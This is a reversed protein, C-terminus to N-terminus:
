FLVRWFVIFFGNELLHNGLLHYEIQDLLIRYQSYLYRDFSKKEIGHASIFKVWNIGRLSTPYPENANKLDRVQDIFM